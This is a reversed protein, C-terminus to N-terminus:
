YTWRLHKCSFYCSIPIKSKLFTLLSMMLRLDFAYIEFLLDGKNIQTSWYKVSGKGRGLRTADPKPAM